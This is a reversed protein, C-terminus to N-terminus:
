NNQGKGNHEKGMFKIVLQKDEFKASQVESDAVTRPLAINRRYAGVQVVLEDSKKILSIDEKSAYPFDFSLEYHGDKREFSHTKGRYFIETPDHDKYLEQGTRKLMELGVVEQELLPLRFIPLPAFREMIEQLYQQQNAKWYDFYHDSVSEPILRNCVVLDTSYGYLNLYTFTRQTQKIVMKEPNVVLRM